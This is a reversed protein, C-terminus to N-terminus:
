TIDVEGEAVEETDKFVGPAERTEESEDGMLSDGAREDRFIDM